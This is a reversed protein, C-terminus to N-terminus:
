FRVKVLRNHETVLLEAFAEPTYKASSDYSQPVFYNNVFDNSGIGITYMCKNLLSTVDEKTIKLQGPLQNVIRQHAVLQKGLPIRDGQLYLIRM